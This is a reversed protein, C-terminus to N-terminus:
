ISGCKLLLKSTDQDQVISTRELVTIFDGVRRGFCSGVAVYEGYDKILFAAYHPYVGDGSQYAVLSKRPAAIASGFEGSMDELLVDSLRGLALVSAERIAKSHNESWSSTGSVPKPEPVVYFFNKTDGETRVTLRFTLRAIGDGSVILKASPLLVVQANETVLKRKADAGRRAIAEDMARSLGESFSLRLDNELGAVSASNKSRDVIVGLLGFYNSAGVGRGAILLQSNPVLYEEAATETLTSVTENSVSITITPSSPYVAAHASWSGLLGVAFALQLLSSRFWKVYSQEM